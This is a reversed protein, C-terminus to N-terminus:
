NMKVILTNKYLQLASIMESQSKLLRIQQLLTMAEPYATKLYTLWQKIRASHYFPRNKVLENELKSQAYNLLLDVTKDWPLPPHNYRIMNALNPLALIGRGLMIDQCHSQEICQKAALVSFIQGNAIVPITLNQKILGITQWDIKDASYGDEKTRGHVTIEDAGGQAVADAIEICQSKDQWGLRIKVSIPKDAPVASRVQQTIQYILEPDKLLYAGGQSGVVTKAPCGANIDIGYSGLEIATLANEAMLQPHQGLLQVRVPIGSATKGQHYLEPCLRYFTKYPLRQQTIRIFETVCYEVNNVETLLQRVVGDLVGEMPALLIRKIPLNHNM